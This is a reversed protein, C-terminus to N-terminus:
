VGWKVRLYSEVEARLSPSIVSDFVILEGVTADPGALRDLRWEGFTGSSGSLAVPDGDLRISTASPVSGAQVVLVHPGAGVTASAVAEGSPTKLRVTLSAEGSEVSIGSGEESLFSPTGDFAMFVSFESGIGATLSPAVLEQVSEKASALVELVARTLVANKVSSTAVSGVVELVARTVSPRISPPVYPSDGIVELVARSTLLEIDDYAGLVEIVTRTSVLELPDAAAGAAPISGYSIVGYM